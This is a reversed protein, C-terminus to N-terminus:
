QGELLERAFKGSAEAIERTFDAQARLFRGVWEIESSEALKAGSDALTALAQEYSEVLDLRARRGAALIQENQERLGAAIEEPDHPFWDPM